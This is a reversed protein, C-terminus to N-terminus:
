EVRFKAVLGNLEKAGQEVENMEGSVQAAKESINGAKQAINTTGLAGEEAASAVGEITQKMGQVFSLVNKSIESFEEVLEDMYVADKNYQNGTDVLAKYDEIVKQDVFKLMEESSQSLNEVSDFVNKTIDQIQNATQSSEEALKRIEDAVVSFGKGAEGARAAEIAANLALLNTQSSIALIDESLVSIQEVAKSQTIAQVLKDQTSAYMQNTSEQSQLAEEKLEEARKKIEEVSQMGEKTRQVMHEVALTIEGVSANMEETSAATEEMQASLEETTASVEEIQFNLEEVAQSVDEVSTGVTSTVGKVGKIIDQISVQMKQMSKTLIGVEDERKLYKENVQISFDADALQKLYDSTAVIPKMSGNILLYSVLIVVIVFVSMVMIIVKLLINYEEFVSSLPINAVFSWNTSIYESQVPKYVSLTDEQTFVSKGEISFAEGAAIKTLTEEQAADIEKINKTVNEEQKGDAVIVGSKTILQAYGKMPKAQNVKNQLSDLKIDAGVIGVFNGSADLIPMIFSCLLVKEGGIEYYYPDLFVAEKTKKPILYYDGAGENDYDTLLTVTIGQDGRVLYPIFRGQADSGVQNEYMEDKEDFANPEWLTYVGLLSSTQNLTEELQKVLMDRSMSGSQKAFVVNNYIGSVTTYAIDFNNGVDKAYGTCTENALTIAQSYSNAYVNRLIIGSSILVGLMVIIGIMISIKYALKLKKFM